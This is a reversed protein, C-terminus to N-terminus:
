RILLEADSDFYIPSPFRVDPRTADIIRHGPVTLSLVKGASKADASQNARLATWFEMQRHGQKLLRSINGLLPVGALRSAWVSLTLEAPFDATIPFSYLGLVTDLDPRASTGIARGDRYKILLFIFYFASISAVAVVISSSHAFVVRALSPIIFESMSTSATTQFLLNVLLTSTLSLLYRRSLVIRPVLYGDAHARSCM